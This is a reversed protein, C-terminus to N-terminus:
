LAVDARIKIEAPRTSCQASVRVMLPQLAALDIGSEAKAIDGRIDIERVQLHRGCKGVGLEGRQRRKDGLMSPGLQLTTGCLQKKTGAPRSVGELHQHLLASGASPHGSAFPGERACIARAFSGVGPSREM